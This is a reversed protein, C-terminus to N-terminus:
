RWTEDKRVGNDDVWAPVLLPGSEAVRQDHAAIAERHEARWNDEQMQKNPHRKLRPFRTAAIMPNGEILSHLYMIRMDYLACDRGIASSM